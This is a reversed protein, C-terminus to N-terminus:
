DEGLDLVFIDFLHHTWRGGDYECLGRGHLQGWPHKQKPAPAANPDRCWFSCRSLVDAVAPYLPSHRRHTWCCSAGLCGLPEWSEPGFGHLCQEPLSNFPWKGTSFRDHVHQANSRKVGGEETMRLRKEFGCTEHALYGVTVQHKHMADRDLSRFTLARVSSVEENSSGWWM